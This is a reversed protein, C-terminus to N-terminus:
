SGQRAAALLLAVMGGAVAAGPWARWRRGGDIGSLAPRRNQSLGALAFLEARRRESASTLIIPHPNLAM